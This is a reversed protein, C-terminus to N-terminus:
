QCDVQMPDRSWGVTEPMGTSKMEGDRAVCVKLLVTWPLLGKVCVMGPLLFRKVVGGEGDEVHMPSTFSTKGGFGSVVM